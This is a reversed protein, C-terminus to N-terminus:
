QAAKNVWEFAARDKAIVKGSRDTVWITPFYSVAMEKAFSGDADLFASKGISAVMARNKADAGKGVIFKVGARPNSEWRDRLSTLQPIVQHCAPCWPAVYAILCHDTDACADITQTAGDSTPVRAMTAPASVGPKKFLAYGGLALAALLGLLYRNFM